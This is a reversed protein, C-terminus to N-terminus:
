MIFPCDIILVNFKERRSRPILFLVKKWWCCGSFLRSCWFVSWIITQQFVTRQWTRQTPWSWICSSEYLQLESNDSCCLSSFSDLRSHISQLQLIMSPFWRFALALAYLVEKNYCRWFGFVNSKFSFFFFSFVQSFLLLFLQMKDLIVELYTVTWFFVATRFRLKGRSEKESLETIETSFTSCGGECHKMTM